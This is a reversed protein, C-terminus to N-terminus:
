TGDTTMEMYRRIEEALKHPLGTVEPDLFGRIILSTSEEETLGRAMLYQLEEESIKGVAAEHTLTTDEVRSELEPVAKIIADDSLMIGRCELHGKTRDAGGVIYGRSVTKAHDRAVMRSTIEARTNEKELLIMGGTDIESKRSAYILSNLKATSNEGALRVKPYMQLSNVPTFCIYNSVFSGGEKVLVGTRPRVHVGESWSHIMTFTIEANEKVYFESIGIHVGHHVNHHAACGTVINLESDEEAIIINHPAQILGEQSMFLCAQLPLQVKSGKKARIFYGHSQHLEAEATYKDAGVDVASWWYDDLWDYRERAIKTSLVEVGDKRTDSQIVSYDLQFYTGSRSNEEYDIGVELAKKKIEEDLEAISSVKVHEKADTSYKQLELSSGYPAEKQLAKKAKKTRLDAM